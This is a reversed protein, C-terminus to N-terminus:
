ATHWDMIDLSSISSLHSSSCEVALSCHFIDCLHHGHVLCSTVFLLTPKLSDLCGCVRICGCLELVCLAPHRQALYEVGRETVRECWGLNVELLSRRLQWGKNLTMWTPQQWTM